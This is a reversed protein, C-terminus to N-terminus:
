SRGIIVIGCPRIVLLIIFLYSAIENQRLSTIRVIKQPLFTQIVALHAVPFSWCNKLNMKEFYRYLHSAISVAKKLDLNPFFM